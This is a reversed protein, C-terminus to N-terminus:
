RATEHSEAKGVPLASGRDPREALVALLDTELFGAGRERGPLRVRRLVCQAALRDILRLSCGFMRAAQARRVIRQGTPKTSEASDAKDKDPGNRLAALIRARERPTVSPDGKLATRVIALTSELMLKRKPARQAKQQRNFV